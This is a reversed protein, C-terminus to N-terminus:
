DLIRVSALYGHFFYLFLVPPHQYFRVEISGSIRFVHIRHLLSHVLKHKLVRLRDPEIISHSTYIPVGLRRLKDEHVKYGGCQPLAEALGVVQIGAQLAHYGAIIGVNGGGIIFLRETPKVLDRNVLTQFAGAGYIGALSNGKFRLFKERAGAANLIVRPTVIKYVGDKLIGVRKDNFVYLATSNKWVDIYHSDEVKQALMRGIDM